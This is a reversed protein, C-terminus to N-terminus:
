YKLLALQDGDIGRMYETLMMEQFKGVAAPRHVSVVILTDDQQGLVEDVAHFLTHMFPEYLWRWPLILAEKSEILIPVHM